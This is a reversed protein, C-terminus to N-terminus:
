ALFRQPAKARKEEVPMDDRARLRGYHAGWKDRWRQAWMRAKAEAVSGKSAPRAGEPLRLRLQEARDLVAETSPAVGLRKNADKAWAVLSWEEWFRVAVRMAREDSSAGMDCVDTYEALDVRLFLKDVLERVEAESRPAWKRRAAERALFAAAAGAHGALDFLILAVKAFRPLAQLSRTEGEESEPALRWQTNMKKLADKQQRQAAKLKKRAAALAEKATSAQTRLEEARERRWGSRAKKKEGGPAGEAEVAAGGMGPAVM